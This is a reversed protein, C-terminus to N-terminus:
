VRERCSARGIEASSWNKWDALTQVSPHDSMGHSEINAEDVLYIGYKDCLEYWQPYNPYHSCRVANINFLKMLRIDEEM